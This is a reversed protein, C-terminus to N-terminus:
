ERLSIRGLKLEPKTVTSGSQGRYVFVDDTAKPM